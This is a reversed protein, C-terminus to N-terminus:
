PTVTSGDVTNKGNTHASGLRALLGALDIGTLDSGLQLGQAVNGAVSKTLSSAGDTSIVTMKDIAGIPASAAGVVEPLM